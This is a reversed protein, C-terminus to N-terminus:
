SNRKQLYTYDNPLLGSLRLAQKANRGSNRAISSLVPLAAAPADSTFAATGQRVQEVLM